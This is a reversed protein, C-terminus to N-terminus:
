RSARDADAGKRDVLARHKSKSRKSVAKSENTQTEIPAMPDQELARMKERWKEAADDDGYVTFTVPSGIPMAIAIEVKSRVTDTVEGLSCIAAMPERLQEALMRVHDLAPQVSERLLASRLGPLRAELDSVVKRATRVILGDGSASSLECEWTASDLLAKLRSREVDKTDPEDM